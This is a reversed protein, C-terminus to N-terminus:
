RESFILTEIWSGNVLSELYVKVTENYGASQLGNTTWFNGPIDPHYKGGEDILRLTVEDVVYRNLLVADLSKSVEPFQHVDDTM